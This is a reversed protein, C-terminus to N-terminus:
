GSWCTVSFVAAGSLGAWPSSASVATPPYGTLNLVYRDSVYRDGPNITGSPHATDPAQGARLMFEPYGWTECPIGPRCTVTQGWRVAGASARWRPDDVLVLAADDRGGPTGRWVVRAQYEDGTGLPQVRTTNGEADVV